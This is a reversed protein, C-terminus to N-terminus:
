GSAEARVSNSTSGDVPPEELRTSGFVRVSAADTRHRYLVHPRLRHGEPVRLHVFDDAPDRTMGLKEMVRRSRTNRVSTMSVIEAFGLRTHAFDLVTRAGETALGRGWADFALRWGIEMAPAFPLDLPVAQLGLFGAFAIEGPIEVAWLGYGNSEIQSQLKAALAASQARDLTQPFFEMVRADANLEAFPAVDTALWPRLLLRASRLTIPVVGHKPRM